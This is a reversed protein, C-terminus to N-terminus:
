KRERCRMILVRASWDGKEHEADVVLPGDGEIIRVRFDSVNGGAALLLRLPQLAHLHFMGGAGAEGDGMDEIRDVTPADAFCKAVPSQFAVTQGESFTRLRLFPEDENAAVSFVQADRHCNMLRRLIPLDLAMRQQAHGDAWLFVAWRGNTAFLRVRGDDTPDIICAAPITNYERQVPVLSAFARLTAAPIEVV